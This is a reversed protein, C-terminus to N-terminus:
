QKVLTGMSPKGEAFLTNSAGSLAGGTNNSDYGLDTEQATYTIDGVSAISLQYTDGSTSSGGLAAVTVTVYRSTGGDITFTSGATALSSFDINSLTNTFGMTSSAVTGLYNTSNQDSYWLKFTSTTGATSGSNTFKIGTITVKASGNNTLKIRALQTGALIAQTVSSGATPADATVSVSFPTIYTKGVVAATGAVSASAGSSAGKAVLDTSADLIAFRFSDGLVAQNAIGIDAKVYITVSTGPQVAEALLNDTATWTFVTSTNTIASSSAMQNASAFPTTENNRYLKINSLDNVTNLTGTATLKLTTVKIPENQATLKFAFVPVNTQGVTVVQDSSPAGNTGSVLSLNLTGSTAVTMAQGSGNGVSPTVSNGTDKGTVTVEAANVVSFTHTGSGARAVVDGKLTLLVSGTKPIVLANAFTFTTSAANTATSASTAIANGNQDYLVLNSIDTYAASGTKVDSVIIKSVRVDEGSSVSSPNLEFQALIFNSTGVVISQAVPTALTTVKLAAAQVTIQNAQSIGVGPDTIDNTVLRKVETLDMYVINTAGGTAQSDINAEVTIYNNQGAILTPYTSLTISTLVTAHNVVADPSGSYVAAGNVRVTFSGSFMDQATSTVLGLAIKRLEMSEGTPKAFYKALVVGSTNPAVSASPSSSDKNFSISGSGVIVQNYTAGANGIPFSTDTAGAVSLISTGTSVGTLVADYDNYVVFQITRAAGNVIKARVTLSKTQGKDILYPNASLDFNVNKNVQQATALVSGDQAVLQVDMVDSDSATGNNYLTLKGLKVAENSGAAFSFKAIEQQNNPDVNLTTGNAGSIAAEDLTVSGLSNGANQLTFVNGAVPFSGGVSGNSTVSSANLLSFSLTGATATSGLNIRLTATETTGAKVTIPAGAFLLTVDNDANVSSAVNGHRTGSSDIIDLGSIVTNAAFGSKRFTLGTVSVDQSGASLNLKLVQNFASGSALNNGAPNSAALSVTLAGGTVVTGPVVASGGGTQTRDAVMANYADLVGGSVLGAVASAAVPRVFAAKFRNASMGAATVEWLKADADVYWTKGGNSVLMGPHAKAETVDAGRNASYNPWFVDAVTMTKFSTGYLAKAADVTIKALKNGPQVVYLQDSSSRKVINSGARYNVGFPSASPVPMADYCEQSVTTYGSYKEDVNWSKFEDGSPFYLVKGNSDVAYIAPKGTVKLLDGSKFAPCTAASAAVPLLAAVGVSWLMTSMVTGVTLVKKGVKLVNSM